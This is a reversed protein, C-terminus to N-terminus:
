TPITELVKMCMEHSINMIASKGLIKAVQGKNVPESVAGLVREYVYYFVDNRPVCNQFENLSYLRCPSVM